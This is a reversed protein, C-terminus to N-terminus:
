TPERVITVGKTEDGNKDCWMSYPLPRPVSRGNLLRSASAAAGVQCVSHNLLVRMIRHIVVFATAYCSAAPTRTACLPRTAHVAV